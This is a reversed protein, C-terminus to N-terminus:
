SDEGINQGEGPNCMTKGVGSGEMKWLEIFTIVELVISTSLCILLEKDKGKRKM